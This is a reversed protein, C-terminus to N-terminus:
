LVQSMATVGAPFRTEWIGFSSTGTETVVIDNKQLFTGMRRWFYAHRIVEAPEAVAPTVGALPNARRIMALTALDLKGILKRLVGKM